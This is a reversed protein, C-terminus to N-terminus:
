NAGSNAHVESPGFTINFLCYLFNTVGNVNMNIGINVGMNLGIQVSHTFM